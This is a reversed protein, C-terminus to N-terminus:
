DSAHPQDCPMHRQREDGTDFYRDLYEGPSYNSERLLSFVEAGSTLRGPFVHFAQALEMYETEAGKAYERAEREALEVAEDFSAARWVTIREEYLNRKTM